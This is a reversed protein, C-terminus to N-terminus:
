RGRKGGRTGKGRKAKPGEGGGSPAGEGGAPPNERQYEKWLSNIKNNIQTTTLGELPQGAGQAREILLRRPDNLGIGGVGAILPQGNAQPVVFNDRM